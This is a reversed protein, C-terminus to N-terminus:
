PDLFTAWRSPSANWSSSIGLKFAGLILMIYKRATFPSHGGYLACSRANLTDDVQRDISIKSEISMSHINHTVKSTNEVIAGATYTVQVEQEM